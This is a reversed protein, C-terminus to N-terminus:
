GELVEVSGDEHVIVEMGADDGGVSPAKGEGFKEEKGDMELTFSYDTQTLADIQRQYELDQYMSRLEPTMAEPHEDLSVTKFGSCGTMLTTMVAIALINRKVTADGLFMKKFFELYTYQMYKM